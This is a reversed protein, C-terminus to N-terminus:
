RWKVGDKSFEHTHANNVIEVSNNRVDAVVGNGSAIAVVEFNSGCRVIVAM